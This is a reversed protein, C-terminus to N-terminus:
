GSDGIRNQTASGDKSNHLGLVPSDGHAEKGCSRHLMILKYNENRLWRKLMDKPKENESDNFDLGCWHRVQVIVFLREIPKREDM